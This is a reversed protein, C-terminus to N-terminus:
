KCRPGSACSLAGLGFANIADTSLFFIGTEPSQSCMSLDKCGPMGRVPTGAEMRFVDYDLRSYSDVITNNAYIGILFTSIGYASDRYQYSDNMLRHLYSPAAPDHMYYGCLTYDRINEIDYANQPGSNKQLPGAGVDAATVFLMCRRDLAGTKLDPCPPANNIDFGSAVVFPNGTDVSGTGPTCAAGSYIVPNFTSGENPYTAIVTGNEDRVYCNDPYLIPSTVIYAGFDTYNSHLIADYTGVLIYNGRESMSVSASDGTSTLYGYFWGQGAQPSGLSVPGPALSGTSGDYTNKLFYFRRGSIEHEKSIIASARAIAPDPLGTINVSGAIVYTRSVSTAGSMDRMGLEMKYSYNLTDVDTQYIRFRDVHVGIASMSNNLSAMWATMSSNSDSPATGYEFDEGDPAGSVLWQAFFANVYHYGDGPPGAKLPNDISYNNLVFLARNLVMSSVSEVKGQTIQEMALGVNSEKYMESYGREATEISKVWVSISLLIYTLILFITVVFLFGKRNDKRPLNSKGRRVFNKCIKDKKGTKQVTM